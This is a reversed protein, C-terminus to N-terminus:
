GQTFGHLSNGIVKRDMHKSVTEKSNVGYDAQLGRIRGGKGEWPLIPPGNREKWDVSVEQNSCGKVPWLSCYRGTNAVKRVVRHIGGAKSECIGRKCVPSETQGEEASTIFARGELRFASSIFPPHPLLLLSLGKWTRQWSGTNEDAETWDEFKLLSSLFLNWFMQQWLLGSNSSFISLAKPLKLDRNELTQWYVQVFPEALKNRLHPM